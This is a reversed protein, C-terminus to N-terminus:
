SRAPNGAGRRRSYYWFLAAALGLFVVCSGVMKLEFRWVSTIQSSPVFAVGGGVITAAIGGIAAFRLTPKSYYGQGATASFAVRALTAFLYLYSIMQLVVSLDLLTVYAEKVTAGIFSMSVLLSALAAITLLAIHPTAYKPHVKGM